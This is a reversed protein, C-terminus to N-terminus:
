TLQTHSMNESSRQDTEGVKNKLCSFTFRLHCILVNLILPRVTVLVCLKDGERPDKRQTPNGGYFVPLIKSVIKCIIVRIQTSHSILLFMIYYRSM